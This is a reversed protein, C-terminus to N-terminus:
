FCFAVTIFIFVFIKLELADKLPLRMNKVEVLPTNGILDLTGQYIGSM